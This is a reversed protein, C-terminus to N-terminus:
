ELWRFLSLALQQNDPLGRNDFLNSDGIVVVTGPLDEIVAVANMSNQSGIVQAQSNRVNLSGGGFLFSVEAVNDFIPHDELHLASESILSQGIDIGFYDTVENIRNTFGPAEALILLSGGRNVFQAIIQAEASSYNQEIASPMAIVITSYRDLDVNELPVQNPVLVIDYEGLLTKLQSYMGDLDYSLGTDSQRPGHSLDWLILQPEDPIASDPETPTFGITPTVTREISLTTTLNPPTPSSSTAQASLAIVQDSEQTPTFAAAPLSAGDGGSFLNLLYPGAFIIGILGLLIIAVGGFLYLSKIRRPRTEGTQTGSEITPSPPHSDKTTTEQSIVGPEILTSEVATATAARVLPQPEEVITADLSPPPPTILGPQAGIAKLAAAMEGATQYREEKSKALAKNIVAVLEIPVQPDIVQLDPIPDNIHMMMLTMASDAEFPPHGSVMEFLAVGLSYIDSRRDPQEGKIQEPSM